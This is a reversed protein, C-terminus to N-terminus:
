SGKLRAEILALVADAQEYLYALTEQYDGEGTKALESLRALSIGNIPFNWLAEAITERDPLRSACDAWGDAYSGGPLREDLKRAAERAVSSLDDPM